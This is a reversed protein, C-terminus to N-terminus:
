LRLVAVYLSIIDVFNDHARVPFAIFVKFAKTTEALHCVKWAGVPIEVVLILFSRPRASGFPLSSRTRSLIAAYFSTEM